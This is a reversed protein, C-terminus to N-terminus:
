QKQRRSAKATMWTCAFEDPNIGVLVRTTDFQDVEVSDLFNGSYILNFGIASGQNNDTHPRALIFFPNQQHSSADRLSSISQVGSRLHTRILHRERAWSGSFQLM